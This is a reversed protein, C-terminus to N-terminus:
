SRPKDADELARDWDGQTMGEILELCSPKRKLHREYADRQEPTVVPDNKGDPTLRLPRRRPGSGLAQDIEAEREDVWAEIAAKDLEKEAM